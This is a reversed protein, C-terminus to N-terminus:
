FVPERVPLFADYIDSKFLFNEWKINIAEKWLTKTERQKSKQFVFKLKQDYCALCSFIENM